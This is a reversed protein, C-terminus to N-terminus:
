DTSEAETETKERWGHILYVKVGFLEQIQECDYMDRIVAASEEERVLAKDGKRFDQFDRRTIGECAHEYWIIDQQYEGYVIGTNNTDWKGAMGDRVLAIMANERYHKNIMPKLARDLINGYAIAYLALLTIATVWTKTAQKIHTQKQVFDVMSSIAIAALIAMLPYVPITYWDLKTEAFSLIVLFSIVSVALFATLDRMNKDKSYFAMNMGLGALVLCTADMYYITTFYFEWSERHDEITTFFRGGLENEFVAKIYGPNYHERLLYYGPVLAIFTVLGAYFQWSTFIQKLRKHYIAMAFMGPMFMLAPVGKTLCALSITFATLLIYKPKGEKLYLYFSALFFTTFMTLLADYDGTRIGHLRTYGEAVILIAPAAIALLRNKFQKLLFWYMFLCTAVAALASPIRIALENVGFAKLSLVQLWILLPPKTNWMDPEWLFTTVLWNHTTYMELANVALRSEDWIQIALEDLHGFVPVILILVVLLAGLLNKLNM